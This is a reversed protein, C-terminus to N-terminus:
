NPFRLRYFVTPNNRDMPINTSLISGSGPVDYWTNTIRFGTNLANTQSQLIWGNHDSPWSLNLNTGSKSFVINTPTWSHVANTILITGNVSLLNTYGLVGPIPAITADTLGYSTSPSDFFKLVQGNTYPRGTLNTVIVVTGNLNLNGIGFVADNVHLLNDVDFINTSGDAYTLDSGGLMLTGIRNFMTPPLSSGASTWGFLNGPTLTAGANININGNVTGDGGLV